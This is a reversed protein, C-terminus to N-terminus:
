DEVRELFLRKKFTGRATAKARRVAELQTRRIGLADALALLVELVDAMEEVSRDEDFEDVEEFLKEVLQELYEKDNLTRTEVRQGRSEIIAPIKDRVLKNYKKM